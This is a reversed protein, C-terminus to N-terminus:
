ICKEGAAASTGARRSSSSTWRSTAPPTVAGAARSSRGSVGRSGGAMHSAKKKWGAQAGERPSGMDALAPDSVQYSPRRLTGQELHARRDHQGAEMQSGRRARRHGLARRPETGGGRGPSPDPHVTKDFAGRSHSTLMVESDAM